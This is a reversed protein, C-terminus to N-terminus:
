RRKEEGAQDAGGGRRTLLEVKAEFAILLDRYMLMLRWLSAWVAMREPPQPQTHQGLCEDLAKLVRYELSKLAERAINRLRAQVSLPLNAMRNTPDRCSFSSMKWIRFFCGMKHVNSVLDHKPLNRGGESYALLFSQLMQPFDPEQERRIQGEVWRQLTEHSPVHDRPFDAKNPNAAGAPEDNSTYPQVTALLPPASTEQSLFISIEKPKGIHKRSCSCLREEEQANRSWVDPGKTLIPWATAPTQMSATLGVETELSM